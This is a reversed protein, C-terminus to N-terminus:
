EDLETSESVTVAVVRDGRFSLVLGRFTEARRDAGPPAAARWEYRLERGDSSFVDRTPEGLRAVVDNVSMGLRIGNSLADVPLAAGRAAGCRVPRM